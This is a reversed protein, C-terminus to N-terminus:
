PCHQSLSVKHITRMIEIMQSYSKKAIDCRKLRLAHTFVTQMFVGKNEDTFEEAYKFAADINGTAIAQNMKILINATKKMEADTTQGYAVTDLGHFGLFVFFLFALLISRKM